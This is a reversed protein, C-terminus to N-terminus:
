KDQFKKLKVKSLEEHESNKNIKQVKDEFDTDLCTGKCDVYLDMSRSTLMNAVAGHCDVRGGGGDHAPPWVIVVTLVVVPLFHEPLAFTKGYADLYM